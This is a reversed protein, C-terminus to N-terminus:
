EANRLRPSGGHRVCFPVPDPLPRRRPVEDLLRQNHGKDDEDDCEMEPARALVPALRLRPRLGMHRDELALKGDDPETADPPLDGRFRDLRRFQDARVAHQLLLRRLFKHGVRGTPLVNGKDVDGDLQELAVVRDVKRKVIDKTEEEVAPGHGRLFELGDRIRKIPLLLFEHGDGRAVGADDLHGVRAIVPEDPGHHVLVVHALEALIAVIGGQGEGLVVGLKGVPHRHHALARLDRVGQESRVKDLGNLLRTVQKLIQNDSVLRNLLRGLISTKL